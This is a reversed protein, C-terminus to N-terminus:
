AQALQSELAGALSADLKLMAALRDLYAREEPQDVNIVMASALYLEACEEPSHCARALEDMEVPKNLESLLFSATSTDLGFNDIQKAINAKETDDLHGDARAAAIMGRVLLLSRDQAENDVLDGIPTGNNTSAGSSQQAQWNNYAKYAMGGVAALGGIKVATGTLKRGGSTGLLLAIAGVALAGKKMGSLMQDRSEGSEPVGLSEEALSIGKTAATKSNQFLDELISKADMLINGTTVLDCWHYWAGDVPCQTRINFVRDIM